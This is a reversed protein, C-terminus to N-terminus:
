NGRRKTMFGCTALHMVLPWLVSWIIALLALSAALPLNFHAVGMRVGAWYALPGGVAALVASLVPRGKLWALSHHPLTALALWIVALWFPIPLAQVNFTFFGARHLMGDVVAGIILLVFMMRGDARRMPSLLLHVGLVPLALLAGNNEWLVCLFWVLQYLLFNILPNM